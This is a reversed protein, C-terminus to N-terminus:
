ASSSGSSTKSRSPLAAVTVTVRVLHGAGWTPVKTTETIMLVPRYEPLTDGAIPRM